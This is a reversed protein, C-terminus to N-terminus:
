ADDAMAYHNESNVFAVLATCDPHLIQFVKLMQKTQQALQENTFYGDRNAGPHM